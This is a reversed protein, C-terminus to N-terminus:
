TRLAQAIQELAVATGQEARIREGLAAARERMQQDSTAQTIAAALREASLARRAIPQPGVGLAAVRRGWFAQDFGFPVVVSPAGSRLAAGTTGAGGHHVVAAMQPLLWHHPINNVACFRDAPLAKADLAGWGGSIVARQGSQRLAEAVLATIKEPRRALMSGFGIYVPAPGAALFAALEAPPAWGDPPPLFWYGTVKHHAPWDAPRPVVLPSYAYMRLLGNRGLEGIPGLLSHPPLGLFKTRLRNTNGRFIQWFALEFAQHSLKNYAGGLRLGQPFIPSPFARTPTLPQFAGEIFPVGLSEALSATAPGVGVVLGAGQAGRLTDRAVDDLLGSLEHRLGLLIRLANGSEPISKIRASLHAEIDEGTAVFDIGQEEALTAFTPPALLRVRHGILRLARALAVFPQIDGRSGYSVVAIDM